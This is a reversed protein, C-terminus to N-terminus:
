VAAGPVRPLQPEPAEAPLLGTRRFNQPLGIALGSGATVLPLEAFAEGMTMLDADSTADVIAIGVGDTRLRSIADRTAAVGAALTDYRLLGVKRRSQAQLVRVLNADTMPTL